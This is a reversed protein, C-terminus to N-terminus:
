SPASPSCMLGLGLRLTPFTQRFSLQKPSQAPPGAVTTALHQRRRGNPQSSAELGDAERPAALM